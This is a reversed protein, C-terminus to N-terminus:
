TLSRAYGGDVALNSGTIYAARESVVFAVLDAVDSPEGYRTLALEDIVGQREVDFSTGRREALEGILERARDTMVPGPCINNIRIGRPGLEWSLTKVLAALGARPVNSLGRGAAPQRYSYSNICAIASGPSMHPVASRILALASILVGQIADNWRELPHNLADGTPPGGGNTVLVDIRGFREAAELVGREISTNDALDVMVRAPLDGSGASIAAAAQALRQPDRGALVVQCGEEHLRAAVAYGIGRTSAAVLAVRGDLRLEM